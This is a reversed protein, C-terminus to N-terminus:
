VCFPRVSTPKKQIWIWGPKEKKKKKKKDDGPIEKNM